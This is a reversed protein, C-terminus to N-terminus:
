AHIKKNSSLDIDRKKWNARAKSNDVKMEKGEKNSILGSLEILQKKWSQIEKSRKM